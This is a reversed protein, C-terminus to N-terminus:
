DAELHRIRAQKWDLYVKDVHGWIAAMGMYYNSNPAIFLDLPVGECSKLVRLVVQAMLQGATQGQPPHGLKM